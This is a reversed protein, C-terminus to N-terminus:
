KQVSYVVTRKGDANASLEWHDSGNGYDNHEWTVGFGDRSTGVMIWVYSILNTGELQHSVVKVKTAGLDLICLPLDKSGGLIEWEGNSHNTQVLMDECANAIEGYYKQDRNLFDIYGNTVKHCSSICLLLSFVLFAVVMRRVILIIVLEKNM